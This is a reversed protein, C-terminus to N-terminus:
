PSLAEEREPPLGILDFYARRMLVLRDAEPSFSLGKAELKELLFADIPARALHKQRVQPVRPRKPPQFSWFQRDKESVLPDPGSGVELVEEPGTPAGATIWQGLKELEVSTVPRVAYAQQFELPPMEEAVIRKVLLSEDPKGPIIAPGSKGGKLLSARTRVDLGGEQMQRGHCVVCRVHLIPVMVDRETVQLVKLTEGGAEEGEKLAGADIWRQILEIELPSLKERGM